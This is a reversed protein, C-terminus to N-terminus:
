GYINTISLETGLIADVVSVVQEAHSDHGEKKFLPHKRVGVKIVLDGNM